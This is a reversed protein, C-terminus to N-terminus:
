SRRGGDGSFPIAGPRRQRETRQLYRRVDERARTLRSVVTGRPIDLIDAIESMTHEELALALVERLSEPLAALAARGREWAEEQHLLHEPDDQAGLLGEMTGGPDAGTEDARRYDTRLRSATCNRLVRYVWAEFREADRLGDLGLHVQLLVEQCLDDRGFRAPYRLAVAQPLWSGVRSLVTYRARADGRQATRVLDPDLHLPHM